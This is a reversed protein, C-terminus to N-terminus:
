RPDYKGVVARLLAKSAMAHSRLVDHAFSADNMFLLSANNAAAAADDISFNWQVTGAFWSQGVNQLGLVKGGGADGRRAATHTFPQVGYTMIAGFDKAAKTSVALWKAYSQEYTRRRKLFGQSIGSPLGITSNIFSANFPINYFPSSVAPRKLPKAYVFGVLTAENGISFVLNANNRERVGSPLPDLSPFAAVDLRPQLNQSSPSFKTVIGFNSGGGKLAKFFRHKAVSKRPHDAFKSSRRRLRHRILEPSRGGFAIVGTNNLYSYVQGCRQGSGFTVTKLNYTIQNLNAVDILIGYDEVNAFGINISHEGTRTAFKSGFFNIILMARSVGQASTSSLICQSEKWYSTSSEVLWLLVSYLLQRPEM